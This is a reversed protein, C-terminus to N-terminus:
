ASGPSSAASSLAHFSAHAKGVDYSFHLRKRWLQASAERGIRRNGLRGPKSDAAWGLAEERRGVLLVQGVKQARKRELNRHRRDAEARIRITRSPPISPTTTLSPPRANLVMSIAVSQRTMAPAAARILENGLRGGCCANVAKGEQAANGARDAPGQPHVGAGVAALDRIHDNLGAGHVARARLPSERVRLHAKGVPTARGRVVDNERARCQLTVRAVRSRDCGLHLSDSARAFIM